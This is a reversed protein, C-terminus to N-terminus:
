PATGCREPYANTSILGFAQHSLLPQSLPITCRSISSLPLASRADPNVGSCAPRSRHQARVHTSNTVVLAQSCSEYTVAVTNRLSSNQRRRTQDRGPETRCPRHIRRPKRRDPIAQLFRRVLPIRPGELPARFAHPSLPRPRATRHRVRAPDDHIQRRRSSRRPRLRSHRFEHPRRIRAFSSRRSRPRPPRQDTGFNKLDLM